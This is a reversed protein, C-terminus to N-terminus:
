QLVPKREEEVLRDRFFPYNFSYFNKVQEAINLMAEAEPDAELTITTPPPDPKMLDNFFVDEM